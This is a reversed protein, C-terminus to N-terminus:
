ALGLTAVLEQFRRDHRIGDFAPEVNLWIVRPERDHVAQKLRQLAADEDRLGSYIVAWDYSAVYSRQSLAEMRRLVAGAADTRGAAAYTHGLIALLPGPAGEDNPVVQEIQAIAEDYKDLCLYAQCLYMHTLPYNFMMRQTSLGVELAKEYDRSLLHAWALDANMSASMPDLDLARHQAAVAQECWGRALAYHAFLGHAECSPKLEVSRQLELEVATWNWDFFL